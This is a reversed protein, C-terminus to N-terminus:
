NNDCAIYIKKFTKGEKVITIIGTGSFKRQWSTNDDNRTVLTWEFWTEEGASNNINGKIREGEQFLDASNTTYGFSQRTFRNFDKNFTSESEFEFDLTNYTPGLGVTASLACEVEDAKFYENNTNEIQTCGLLIAVLFFILIITLVKM